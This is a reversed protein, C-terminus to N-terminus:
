YCAKSLLNVPRCVDKFIQLFLYQYETYTIGILEHIGHFRPDCLLVVHTHPVSPEDCAHSCDRQIKRSPPTLERVLLPEVSFLSIVSLSSTLEQWKSIRTDPIDAM